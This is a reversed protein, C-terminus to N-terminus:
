KKEEKQISVKPLSVVPKARMTASRNTIAKIKRSVSNANRALKMREENRM